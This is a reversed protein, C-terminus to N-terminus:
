VKAAHWESPVDFGLYTGQGRINHAIGKTRNVRELEIKLFTSTDNVYNLLNKRQIYKWTKGFLVVNNLDVGQNLSLGDQATPRFAPTTYFGSLGVKGGFTVIDPVQNLYWNEHGWMKGTIGFGTRTEDAVFPIQNDNAIKRL